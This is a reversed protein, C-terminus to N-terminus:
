ASLLTTVCVAVVSPAASRLVIVTINEARVKVIVAKRGAYKGSLILVVKNPRM